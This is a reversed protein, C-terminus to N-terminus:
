LLWAGFCVLWLLVSDRRAKTLESRQVVLGSEMLKSIAHRINGAVLTRTEEPTEESWKLERLHRETFRQIEPHISSM